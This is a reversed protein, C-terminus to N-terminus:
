HVLIRHGHNKVPRKQPHRSSLFTFVHFFHDPHSLSVPYIDFMQSEEGVLLSEEHHGSDFSNRYVAAEQRAQELQDTLSAFAEENNTLQHVMLQIESEPVDM